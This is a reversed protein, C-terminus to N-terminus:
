LLGRSRAARDARARAKRQRRTRQTYAHDVISQGVRRMYRPLTPSGATFAPGRFGLARRHSRSVARPDTLDPMVLGPDTEPATLDALAAEAAALALLKGQGRM